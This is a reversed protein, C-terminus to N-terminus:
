GNIRTCENYGYAKATAADRKKIDDVEKFYRDAKAQDKLALARAAATYGLSLNEVDTVFQSALEVSETPKTLAKLKDAGGQYIGALKEATAQDKATGASAAQAIFDRCIADSETIYRAKAAGPKETSSCGALVAPVLVAAV